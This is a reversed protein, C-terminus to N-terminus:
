RIYGLSKLQELTEPDLDLEEGAEDGGASRTESLIRSLLGVVDPHSSAIDHEQGHDAVMDHLMRTGDSGATLRFRGVRVTRWAPSLRNLDCSPNLQELSELLAHAPRAYEAILPRDEGYEEDPELLSVSHPPMEAVSIGAIDLITAFIDTLMVPEERIGPPVIDHPARIVLPVALVTEHVSFQHEMLGHDGINEGHDSTVILVMHDLVGHTELLHVAEGLFNDATNVDGGYLRRIEDWNMTGDHHLGANYEMALSIPVVADPPLDPLYQQRFRAPPDYPLHPELFNVFLFFPKDKQRNELWGALNRITQRAGQDGEYSTLDTIGGIISEQRVAFGRLLGSVRDSLWPNSFFAATEYGAEGLLEALTPGVDERPPLKGNCRQTFPLLGTFMSAHSPVTWPAASWAHSFVTGESAIQDLHPTLGEWYGSSDAIGTADRRMTDLVMLAISPKRSQRSCV